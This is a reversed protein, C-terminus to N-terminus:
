LDLELEWTVLKIFKDVGGHGYVCHVRAGAEILATAERKQGSSLEGDVTKVEVFYVVGRVIVIRDPVNARGPSVWKRTVANPDLKCFEDNLYTEVKNERKGM